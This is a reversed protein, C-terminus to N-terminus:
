GCDQLADYIETRLLLSKHHQLLLDTRIPLLHSTYGGPDLYAQLVPAVARRFTAESLPKSAWVVQGWKKCVLQVQLLRTCPLEGLIFELLETTGLVQKAAM